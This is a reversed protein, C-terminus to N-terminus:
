LDRKLLRLNFLYLSIIFLNIIDFIEDIMQINKFFESCKERSSYYINDM